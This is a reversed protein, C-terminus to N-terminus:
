HGARAYLPMMPVPVYHVQTGVGKERLAKMLINRKGILRDDRFLAVYIHYSCGGNKDQSLSKFWPNDQFAENYVSALLRRKEVMETLRSVQSAGLAALIDPLRYNYGLEQLEMYWLNPQADQDFAEAKNSFRDADKTIGHTRLELLRHHLNTDATLVAGGEGTAIHKVPHFSMVSLDAVPHSGVGVNSDAYYAGIAHCADEVVNFGYKHKLKGLRVMDLSQGTFCVPVVVKVPDGKRVQEILITELDNLDLLGTDSDIDAFQVRHGAYLLCNASASFTIAPVIGLSQAPLDLALMALHLGATGNACAVANQAGTVKTLAKEFEHVVPGQTLMDGR